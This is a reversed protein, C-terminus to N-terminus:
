EDLSLFGAVPTLLKMGPSLFAAVATALTM